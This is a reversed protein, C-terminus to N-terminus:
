RLSSAVRNVVESVNIGLLEFAAIGILVVLFLVMGVESYESARRDKLLCM